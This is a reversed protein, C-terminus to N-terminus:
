TRRPHHAVADAAIRLNTGFLDLAVAQAPNFEVEKVRPLAAVDMQRQEARVAHVRRERRRRHREFFAQRQRLCGLRQLSSDGVSRSSTTSPTLPDRM